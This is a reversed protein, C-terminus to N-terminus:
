KSSGCRKRLAANQTNAEPLERAIVQEVQDSPGVAIVLNMARDQTLAIERRETRGKLVADTGHATRSGVYATIDERFFNLRELSQELVFLAQANTLAKRSVVTITGVEADPMLPSLAEGGPLGKMVAIVESPSADKLDLTVRELPVDAQAEIVSAAVVECRHDDAPAVQTAAAAALLTLAALGATLSLRNLPFGM